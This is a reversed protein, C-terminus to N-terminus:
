ARGERTNRLPQLGSNQRAQNHVPAAHPSCPWARAPGALLPASGGALATLPVKAIPQDFCVWFSERYTIFLRRAGETRSFSGFHMSAPEGRAMADRKPSMTNDAVIQIGCRGVGAYSGRGVVVVVWGGGGVGVGGQGGALM